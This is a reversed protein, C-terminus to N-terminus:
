YDSIIELSRLEDAKPKILPQEKIIGPKNHADALPSNQL